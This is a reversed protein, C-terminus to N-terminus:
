YQVLVPVFHLGHVEMSVLEFAAFDQPALIRLCEDDATFSVMQFGVISLLTIDLIISGNM